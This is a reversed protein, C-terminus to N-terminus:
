FFFFFFFNFELILIRILTTSHCDIKCGKIVKLILNEHDKDEILLNFIQSTFSLAKTQPCLQSYHLQPCPIM